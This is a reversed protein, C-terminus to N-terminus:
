FSFLVYCLSLVMWFCISGHSCAVSYCQLLTTCFKTSIWGLCCLGSTAMYPKGACFQIHIICYYYIFFMNYLIPISIYLICIYQIWWFSQVSIHSWKRKLHRESQRDCGSLVGQFSLLIDSSPEAPRRLKIFLISIYKEHQGSPLIHKWGWWM